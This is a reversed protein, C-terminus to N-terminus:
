QKLSEEREALRKNEKDIYELGSDVQRKNAERHLKNIKQRSYMEALSSHFIKTMITATLSLIGPLGGISQVIHDVATVMGTLVDYVGKIEDSDFITDYL